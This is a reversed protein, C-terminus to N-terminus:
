LANHECLQILRRLNDLINADDLHVMETCDQFTREQLLACGKSSGKSLDDKKEQSYSSCHLLVGQNM